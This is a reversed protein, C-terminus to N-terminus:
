TSQKKECGTLRQNKKYCKGVDNLEPSKLSVHCTLCPKNEQKMYKVNGLIPRSVTLLGAFLVAAPLAFRLSSMRLGGHIPQSYCVKFEAELIKSRLKVVPTVFLSNVSEANDILRNLYSVRM